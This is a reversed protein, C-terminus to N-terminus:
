QQEDRIIQICLKHDVYGVTKIRPGPNGQEDILYLAPIKKELIAIRENLSDILADNEAVDAVLSAIRQAQQRNIETPYACPTDHGQSNCLKCNNNM